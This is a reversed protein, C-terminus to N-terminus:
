FTADPLRVRKPFSKSEFDIFALWKQFQELWIVMVMLIGSRVVKANGSPVKTESYTGEELRV